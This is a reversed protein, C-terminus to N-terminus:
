CIEEATQVCLMTYKILYNMCKGNGVLPKQVKQYFTSSQIGVCISTKVKDQTNTPQIIAIGCRQISLTYPWLRM